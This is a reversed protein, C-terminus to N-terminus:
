IWIMRMNTNNVNDTNDVTGYSSIVFQSILNRHEDNTLEFIFDIPLHQINVKVAQTLRRIEVGYIRTLDNDLM